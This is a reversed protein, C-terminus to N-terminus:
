SAARVDLKWIMWVHKSSTWTISQEHLCFKWLCLWAALMAVTSSDFNLQNMYLKAKDINVPELWKFMTSVARSGDIYSNM